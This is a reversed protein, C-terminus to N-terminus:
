VCRMAMTASGRVFLTSTRAPLGARVLSARSRTSFTSECDARGPLRCTTYKRLAGAERMASTRPPRSLLWARLPAPPSPAATPDFMPPPVAALERLRALVDVRPALLMGTLEPVDPP